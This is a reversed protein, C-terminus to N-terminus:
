PWSCPSTHHMYTIITISLHTIDTGFGVACWVYKAAIDAKMELAKIVSARVDVLTGRSPIKAIAQVLWQM